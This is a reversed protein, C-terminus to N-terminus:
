KSDNNTGKKGTKKDEEKRESMEKNKRVKLSICARYAEISGVCM